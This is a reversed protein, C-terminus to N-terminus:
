VKSKTSRKRKEPESLIKPMIKLVVYLYITAGFILLGIQSYTYLAGETFRTVDLIVNFPLQLVIAILLYKILGGKYIGFGILTATAAHFLTYGIAGIFVLLLFLATSQESIGGALILFPTFSAGFGLGLSLGYIVTEKKRQLRGINLVITKFLQDFFAFIIILLITLPYVYVVFRAVAAIVGILIGIVFMLFLTKDKYIGEYGKLAFFWLALAPIIGIFLLTQIGVAMAFRAQISFLINFTM